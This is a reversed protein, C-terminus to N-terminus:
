RHEIKSKVWGRFERILDLYDKQEVQELFNVIELVPLGPFALSQDVNTYTKNQLIHISFTQRDYVWIEPVGMEAYVEFRNKSSSSIDIEVVLDPPPDQQLDIRTKGKILNINKIYFCEDPEAGSLEPHKFTTSGLPQIKVNLEESLTEVFRGLVKKYIEHEPSPLMIELNGRNYTLRLRRSASLEVLLNEYTQWSIGSLHVIETSQILTNSTM